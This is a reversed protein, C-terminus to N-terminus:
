CSQRDCCRSLGYRLVEAAMPPGMTLAIIKARDDGAIHKMHNAFALAQADLENIVSPLKTRILNGTKPDFANDTIQSVDPVQKVLVIYHSM